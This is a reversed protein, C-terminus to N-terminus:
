KECRPNQIFNIIQQYTEGTKSRVQDLAETIAKKTPMLAHTCLRDKVEQFLGTTAAYIFLWNNPSYSRLAGDIVQEMENYKARTQAVTSLAKEQTVLEKGIKLITDQVLDALKSVQAVLRSKIAIIFQATTSNDRPITVGYKSAIDEVHVVREKQPSSIDLPKEEESSLLKGAVIAATALAILTVVAIAVQKAIGILMQKQGAQCTGGSLCDTHSKLSEQLRQILQQTEQTKQTFANRAKQAKEKMWDTVVPQMLPQWSLGVFIIIPVLRSRKMMEEM